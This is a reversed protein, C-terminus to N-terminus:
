TPPAQISISPGLALRALAITRCFDDASPESHSAMRTGPKARFNQVIVEQVHGYQGHLDRLALIAEIRERMTEGIGVLIGSTTPINLEGAARITDLRM